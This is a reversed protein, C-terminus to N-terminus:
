LIGLKRWKDALESQVLGHKKTKEFTVEKKSPAISMRESAPKNYIWSEQPTLLRSQANPNLSSEQIGTARGSEDYFIKQPIYSSSKKSNTTAPAPSTQPYDSASEYINVDPLVSFDFAPKDNAFDKKTLPAQPEGLGFWGGSSGGGGSTQIQGKGGSGAVVSYGVIGVATVIGAIALKNM